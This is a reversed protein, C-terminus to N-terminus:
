LLGVFRVDFVEGFECSGDIYDHDPEAHGKPWHQRIPENFLDPAEHPHDPLNFQRRSLPHHVLHKGHELPQAGSMELVSHSSSSSSQAEKVRSM